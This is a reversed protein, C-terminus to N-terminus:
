EAEDRANKKGEPSPKKEQKIEKPKEDLKANSEEKKTVEEKVEKTKLPPLPAL